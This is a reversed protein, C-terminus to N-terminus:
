IDKNARPSQKGSCKMCLPNVVLYGNAWVFQSYHDNLCIRVCMKWSRTFSDIPVSPTKPNKCCYKISVPAYRYRFMCCTHSRKNIHTHSLSLFLFFCCLNLHFMTKGETKRLGSQIKNYIFTSSNLALIQLNRQKTITTIKTQTQIFLDNTNRSFAHALM